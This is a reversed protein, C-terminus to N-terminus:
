LESGISRGSFNRLFERIEEIELGMEVAEFILQIWEKDLDEVIAQESIM